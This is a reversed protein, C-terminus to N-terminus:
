CQAAGYVMDSGNSLATGLRVPGVRPIVNVLQGQGERWWHRSLRSAVRAAEQAQDHPVYVHIDLDSSFGFNTEKLSAGVQWARVTLGADKLDAVVDLKL